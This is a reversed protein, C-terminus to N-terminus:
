PGRKAERFSYYHGALEVLWDQEIVTIERMFRKTTEFVEHFIVFPKPPTRSFLVSSPHAHLIQTTSIWKWDARSIPARALQSSFFPRRVAGERVSRYTGDPQLM